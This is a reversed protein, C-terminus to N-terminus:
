RIEAIYVEYPALPLRALDPASEPAAHTSFLLRRPGAQGDSGLTKMVNVKQSKDSMNFVVLCAQDPTRRTFALIHEDLRKGLSLPAYDGEILAPTERRLRLLRRYFNLMSHPDREQAAVNVGEAFNPHVPLWTQVGSPSFGANPASSWQLPTRNKDRTGRAIMPYVQEPPAGLQEVAMRYQHVGLMDRFQTLDQLLLDAMGIEEGNYLFPTGRLTLILALSQRAIADNTAKAAGPIGFSTWVRGTDHNGLTNCPWAGPSPCGLAALGALREAQNQRVWAPTLSNTRILPFNFVLHLEDPACYVIEDSEGVLLRDHYEDVVARLERLLEHLGPLDAQHQFLLRWQEELPKFEEPTRAAASARYLELEGMSARHNPFGPEEYITGIADLRFGDVGMDLWFRAANWMAEKVAPNRWNLDPQEKFFYHYYYQGREPVWEWAPGGFVSAWNNPPQGAKGPGDKGDLWVYWDSKPNTRSSRSERFWPHQDSTHNLVLDLIVRIERQHAEELFRRFDDLTGYEPAVGMYDSIDYGCDVNPSPFHPSLWIGDIGLDKLYDLRSIMGALDGIGDGNGDAFSRPYIQYFVGKQWWKLQYM